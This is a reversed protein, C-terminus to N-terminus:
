VCHYYMKTRNQHFPLYHIHFLNHEKDNFNVFKVEHLTQQHVPFEKLQNWIIKDGSFDVSWREKRILQMFDFFDRQPM